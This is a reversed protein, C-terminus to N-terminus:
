LADYRILGPGLGRERAFRHPRYHSKGAWRPAQRFSSTRYPCSRWPPLTVPHPSVLRSVLLSKQVPAPRGTIDPQDGSLLSVGYRGLKAEIRHRTIVLAVTPPGATLSPTCAFALGVGVSSILKPSVQGKSESKEASKRSSQDGQPSLAIASEFGGAGSPLSFALGAERPSLGLIMGTVPRASNPRDSTM